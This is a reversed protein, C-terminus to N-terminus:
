NQAQQTQLSHAESTTFQTYHSIHKCHPNWIVSVAAARSNKILKLKEQKNSM